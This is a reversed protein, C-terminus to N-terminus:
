KRTTIELSNLFDHIEKVENLIIRTYDLEKDRTESLALKKILLQTFGQISTLSNGIEHALTAAIEKTIQINYEKEGM